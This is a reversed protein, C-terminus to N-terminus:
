GIICVIEMIIPVCAARVIFKAAPLKSKQDQNSKVKERWGLSVYTSSIRRNASNTKRNKRIRVFNRSENDLRPIELFFIVKVYACRQWPSISSMLEKQIKM